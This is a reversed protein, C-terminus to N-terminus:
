ACGLLGGLLLRIEGIVLMLYAGDVIGSLINRVYRYM